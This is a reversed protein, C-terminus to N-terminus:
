QLLTEEVTRIFAKDLVELHSENVILADKEVMEAAAAAVEAKTLDEKPSTISVSTNKGNNMRFNMILTAKM